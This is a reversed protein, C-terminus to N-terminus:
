RKKFIKRRKKIVIGQYYDSISQGMLNYGVSYDYEGHDNTTSINEIGTPNDVIATISLNSCLPMDIELTPGSIYEEDKIGYSVKSLQWGSVANGSLVISRGAFFMGDFSGESLKINNFIIEAENGGKQNIQLPTPVGLNYNDAIDQYFVAPRTELWVKAKEMLGAYDLNDGYYM